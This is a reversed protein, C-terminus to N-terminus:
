KMMIDGGTMLPPLIMEIDWMLSYRNNSLSKALLSYSIKHGWWNLKNHLVKAMNPDPNRARLLTTFNRLRYAALLELWIEEEIQVKICSNRNMNESCRGKIRSIRLRVRGKNDKVLSEVRKIAGWLKGKRCRIPQIEIWFGTGIACWKKIRGRPNFRICSSM